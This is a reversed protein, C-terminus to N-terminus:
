ENESMPIIFHSTASTGIPPPPTISVNAALEATLSIRAPLRRGQWLIDFRAGRPSLEQILGRFQAAEGLGYLIVEAGAAARRVAGAAPDDANIVACSRPKVTAPDTLQLDRDKLFQSM